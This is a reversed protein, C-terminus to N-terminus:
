TQGRPASTYRRLPVDGIAALVARTASEQSVPANKAEVLVAEAV